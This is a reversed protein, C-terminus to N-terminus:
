SKKTSKSDSKPTEPKPGVRLSILEMAGSDTKKYYLGVEDGVKADDLTAPKGAKTIKTASTIQYTKDSVKITKASKDIADITGKGPVGGGGKTKTAAASSDPKKAPKDQAQVQVTLGVVLTALLGALALRSIISKM